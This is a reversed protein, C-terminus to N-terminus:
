LLLCQPLQMLKLRVQTYFSDPDLSQRISHRLHYVTKPIGDLDLVVLKMEYHCTSRKGLARYDEVICDAEGSLSENGAAYHGQILSAPVVLSSWSEDTKKVLTFGKQQLVWEAEQHLPTSAGKGTQIMEIQCNNSPVLIEAHSKAQFVGVVLCCFVSVRLVM